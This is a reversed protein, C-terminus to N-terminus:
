PKKKRRAKASRVSDAIRKLAREGASEAELRKSQKYLRIEEAAHREAEQRSVGGAYGAQKLPRGDLRVLERMKALFQALTTPRRQDAQSEFFELVLSTILNLATIEPEALLNKAAQAEKVTPTKGSFHM